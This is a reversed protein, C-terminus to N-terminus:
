CLDRCQLLPGRRCVVIQMVLLLVDLRVWVRRNRLPLTDHPPQMLVLVVRWVVQLKVLGVIVTTPRM